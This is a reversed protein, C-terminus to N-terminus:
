CYSFLLFAEYIGSVLVNNGDLISAIVKHKWYHVDINQVNGLETGNVEVGIENM